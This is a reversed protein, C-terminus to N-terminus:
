IDMIEFRNYKTYIEEKDIDIIELTEKNIVEIKLLIGNESNRKYMQKIEKINKKTEQKDFTCVKTITRKSLYSEASLICKRNYYHIEKIGGGNTWSKPTERTIKIVYEQKM